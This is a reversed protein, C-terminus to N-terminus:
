GHTNERRTAAMWARDLLGDVEELKDATLLALQYSSEIERACAAPAAALARWMLAHHSFVIWGIQILKAEIRELDRVLGTRHSNERKADASPRSLARAAKPM